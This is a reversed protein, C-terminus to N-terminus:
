GTHNSTPARAQVLTRTSSMQAAHTKALVPSAPLRAAAATQLQPQIEKPIIMPTIIKCILPQVSSSSTRSPKTPLWVTLRLVMSEVTGVVVEALGQIVDVPAIAVGCGTLSFISRATKPTKNASPHMPSRPKHAIRCILDWPSPARALAATAASTMSDCTPLAAGGIFRCIDRCSSFSSTFCPEPLRCFFLVRSSSPASTLCVVPRLRLSTTACWSRLSASAVTVHGFRMADPM